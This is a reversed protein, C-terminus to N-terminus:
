GPHPRCLHRIFASSPVHAPSWPGRACHFVSHTQDSGAWGSKQASGGCPWCAVRGPSSSQSISGGCERKRQRGQWGGAVGGAQHHIQMASHPACFFSSFFWNEYQPTDFTALHLPTSQVKQSVFVVHAWDYAPLTPRYSSKYYRERPPIPVEEEEKGMLAGLLNLAGGLGRKKAEKEGEEKAVREVESGEEAEKAKAPEPNPVVTLAVDKYERSTNNRISWVGHLHASKEDKELTLNYKAELEFSKTLSYTLSGLSKKEGAFQAKM